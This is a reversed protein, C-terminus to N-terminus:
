FGEFRSTIRKQGGIEITVVNITNIGIVKYNIVLIENCLNDANKLATEPQKMIHIGVDGIVYKDGRNMYEDVEWSENEGVSFQFSFLYFGLLGNKKNAVLFFKDGHSVIAKIQTIYQHEHFVFEKKAPINVMVCEEDTVAMFSMQDGSFEGFDPNEKFDYTFDYFINTELEDNAYNISLLHSRTFFLLTNDVTKSFFFQGCADDVPMDFKKHLEWIDINNRKFIQVSSVKDDIGRVGLTCALTTHDKNAALNFIEIEDEFELPLDQILTNEFDDYVEIRQGIAVAYAKMEGLNCGIAGEYNTDKVQVKFNDMYKKSYAIFGIDNQKYSLGTQGRPGILFNQCKMFNNM